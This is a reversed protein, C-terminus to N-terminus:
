MCNPFLNTYCLYQCIDSGCDNCSHHAGYHLRIKLHDSGPSTRFDKVLKVGNGILLSVVYKFMCLACDLVLIQYEINLYHSLWVKKDGQRYRRHATFYHNCTGFVVGSNREQSMKWQSGVQALGTQHSVSVPDERNQCTQSCIYM